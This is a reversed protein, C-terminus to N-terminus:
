IGQAIRTTINQHSEGRIVSPITAHAVIIGSLLSNTGAAVALTLLRMEEISTYVRVM